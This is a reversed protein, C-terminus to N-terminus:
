RNDSKTDISNKIKKEIVTIKPLIVIYFSFFRFKNSILEGYHEQKVSTSVFGETNSVSILTTSKNAGYRRPLLIPKNPTTPTPLVTNIIFNIKM